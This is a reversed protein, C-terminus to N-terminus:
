LKQNHLINNIPIHITTNMKSYMSKNKCLKCKVKSFGATFIYISVYLEKFPM